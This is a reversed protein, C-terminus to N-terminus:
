VFLVIVRPKSKLFLSDLSKKEMKWKRLGIREVERAGWRYSINFNCQQCPSMTRCWVRAAQKDFCLVPIWCLVASVGDEGPFAPEQIKFHLPSLSELVLSIYVWKCCQTVRAQVWPKSSECGWISSTSSVAENLVLKACHESAPFEQLERELGESICLRGSEYYLPCWHM